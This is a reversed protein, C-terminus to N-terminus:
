EVDRPAGVRTGVRVHPLFALPVATAIRFALRHTEMEGERAEGRATARARDFALM